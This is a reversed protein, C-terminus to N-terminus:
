NCLTWLDFKLSLCQCTSKWGNMIFWEDETRKCDPTMWASKMDVKREYDCSRGMTMEIAERM